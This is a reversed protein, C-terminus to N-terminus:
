DGDDGDDPGQADDRTAEVGRARRRRRVPGEIVAPPPEADSVATPTVDIAAPAPLSRSPSNAGALVDRLQDVSLHSLDPLPQLGITGSVDIRQRQVSSLGLLSRLMAFRERPEASRMACREAEELWRPTREEIWAASDDHLAAPLASAYGLRRREARGRARQERRGEATTPKHSRPLNNRATRTEEM